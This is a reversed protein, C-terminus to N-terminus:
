SASRELRAIRRGVEEEMWDECEDCVGADLQRCEWCTPQDCRPCDRIEWGGPEPHEPDDRRGCVHCPPALDTDAPNM